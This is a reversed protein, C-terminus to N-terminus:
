GARVLPAPAAERVEADRLDLMKYVMAITRKMERTLRKKNSADLANGLTQLKCIPAGPEVLMSPYPVGGTVLVERSNRCADVTAAERKFVLGDPGPAYVGPALDGHVRRQWMRNHIIVQSGDLPLMAEREPYDEIYKRMVADRGQLFEAVHLLFPTIVGKGKIENLTTHLSTSNQFRPNIEVPYLAGQRYVFDMGFIGRYGQQAMWLGVARVTTEVQRTIEAPLDKAASYDNGCFVSPYSCCEPAGVVQVSPTMCVVRPGGPGSIVVANVNLSPGNIYRRIIARSRKFNKVVFRHDAEENIRFTSSGSSGYPFQIMFPLSLEKRLANFTSRGPIDVFGPIRALGLKKLNNYLLIKNDFRKKMVEGVAFLRLKESFLGGDKEMSRVSRYCLLNVGKRYKKVRALIEEGLDGKLAIKLDENSWNKRVPDRKEASFLDEERFYHALDRGYSCSIIVDLPLLRNIGAADHARQGMWGWPGHKEALYAFIDKM